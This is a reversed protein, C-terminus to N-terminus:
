RSLSNMLIVGVIVFLLGGLIMCVDGLRIHQITIFRNPLHEDIYITYCGGEQYLSDIKRLSFAEGSEGKYEVGQFKFRFIPTYQVVGHGGSYSKMGIYVAEVPTKCICRKWCSHIGAIILLGGVGGTLFLWQVPQSCLISMVILLIGCFSFYGSWICAEKKMVAKLPFTCYFMFLGTLLFIIGIIIM